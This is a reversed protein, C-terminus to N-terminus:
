KKTHSLLLICERIIRESGKSTFLDSTLTNSLTKRNSHYFYTVAFLFFMYGEFSVKKDFIGTHQGRRYFVSLKRYSDDKIKKLCKYFPEAELNVWSILKWFDLHTKHLRMYHQLIVSTMNRCDATIQELMASEQRSAEEFSQILCTEFLKKKSGFYQYIRQKNANAKVAISDINTGHYGHCAFLHQATKLIQARTKLAREQM